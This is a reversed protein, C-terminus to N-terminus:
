VRAGARYGEREALWATRYERIGADLYKFSHIASGRAEARAVVSKAGEIVHFKFDFGEDLWQRLVQRDPAAVPRTLNITQALLRCQQEFESPPQQGSPVPRSQARDPPVTTNTKPYPLRTSFELDGAESPVSRSARPTIPIPKNSIDPSHSRTHSSPPKLSAQDGENIKNGKKRNEASKRGGSSGNEAFERSTKLANEIEKEARDNTIQGDSNIRIKGHAILSERLARWKRISCNMYGALLRENDLLPGGRDYMMDLLTQYAGREELTLPMFGSLADSHYRKHYPRASVAAGM